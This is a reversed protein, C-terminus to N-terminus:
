RRGGRGARRSLLAIVVAVAGAAPLGYKIVKMAGSGIVPAATVVGAGAGALAVSEPIPLKAIPSSGLKPRVAKALTRVQKFLPNAIISAIVDIGIEVIARSIRASAQAIKDESDADSASVGASVLEYGARGLNLAGWASLVLDSPVGFPTLQLGGWVGLVIAFGLISDPSSLESLKQRAESPLQNIARSLALEIRGLRDTPITAM